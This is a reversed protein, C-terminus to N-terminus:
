THLCSDEGRVDAPDVLAEVYMCVRGVGWMLPYEFRKWRCVCSDDGRQLPLIRSRKWTCLCVYERGVDRPDTFAEVHVYMHGGWAMPRIWWRKLRCARSEGAGLPFSKGDSRGECVHTRAGVDSPNALAEGYVLVRGLGVDFVSTLRELYVFM